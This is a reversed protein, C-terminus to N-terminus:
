NYIGGKLESGAECDIQWEEYDENFNETYLEYIYQYYKKDLENYECTGECKEFFAEAEEMTDFYYVKDASAGDYFGAKKSEAFEYETEVQYMESVVFRKM